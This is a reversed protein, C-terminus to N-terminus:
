GNNSQLENQKEKRKLYNLHNREKIKEKNEDRYQKRKAKLEDINNQYYDKNYQAIKEKNKQRYKAQAKRQSETM